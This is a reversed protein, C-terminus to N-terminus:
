TPWRMNTQSTGASTMLTISFTGEANASFVLPQRGEKKLYYRNYRSSDRSVSYGARIAADESILNRSFGQDYCGRGLDGVEASVHATLTGPISGSIRTAVKERRINLALDRDRIVNLNSCNDLYILGEGLSSARTSCICSFSTGEREIDEESEDGESKEDEDGTTAHARKEKVAKEKQRKKKDKEKGKKSVKKRQRAFEDQCRGCRTHNPKKPCFLAGCNACKTPGPSSPPTSGIRLSSTAHSTSQFPNIPSSARLIKTTEAKKLATILAEYTSPM